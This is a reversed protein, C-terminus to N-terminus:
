IRIIIDNLNKKASTLQKYGNEKLLIDDEIRVGGFDPIYVGPEITFVMGPVLKEKKTFSSTDHVEIGIFHGSGHKKKQGAEEVQKKFVQDLYGFTKGEKLEELLKEQTKKVLEYLEEQKNSPKGFFFTRTIDSAYGDVIAGFDVLIFEGKEFKKEPSPNTYHIIASNKGSGVITQFSPKESGLEKMKYEIVAALKAETNIKNFDFYPIEDCVKSVIDAAKKIKEIEYPEKIVRAGELFKTADVFKKGKFIYNFIRKPLSGLVKNKLNEYDSVVIENKAIGIKKFDKTEEKLTKYFEESSESVDRVIIEEKTYKKATEHELEGPLLLAYGDRKLLLIAHEFLGQIFQTAYKFNPTQESKNILLIAELNSDGFIKENRQKLKPEMM